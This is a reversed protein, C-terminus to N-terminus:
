LVTVVQAGYGELVSMVEAFAEARGQAHWWAETTSADPMEDPLGAVEALTSQATSASDRRAVVLEYLAQVGAPTM